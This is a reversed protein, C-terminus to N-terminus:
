NGLKRAAEYSDIARSTAEPFWSAAASNKDNTMSPTLSRDYGIKDGKDPIMSVLEGTSIKRQRVANRYQEENERSQVRATQRKVEDRAKTISDASVPVRNFAPRATSATRRKVTDMSYSTLGEVGKLPRAERRQKLAEDSVNYPSAHRSKKLTDTNYLKKDSYFKTRQMESNLRDGPRADSSAILPLIEKNSKKNEVARTEQPEPLINVPKQPNFNESLPLVVPVSAPAVPKSLEATKQPEPNEPALFSEFTPKTEEKVVPVSKVADLSHMSFLTEWNSMEVSFDM